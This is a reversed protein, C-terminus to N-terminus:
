LLWVPWMTRGEIATSTSLDPNKSSKSSSKKAVSRNCTSGIGNRVFMCVCRYRPPMALCGQSTELRSETLAGPQLPPGTYIAWSGHWIITAGGVDCTAAYPIGIM